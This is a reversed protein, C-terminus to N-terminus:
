PQLRIRSIRDSNFNVVYLTQDDALAIGSPGDFAEPPTATLRLLRRGSLDFVIVDNTVTSSAYLRKTKQDVILDPYQWISKQWEPVDWKNLFRGSTDFVQIRGNQADAVYVTEGFVAVATPELFEGVGSGRSGWQSSQGDARLKVIRSRGQDVVYVEDHLGLTAGRPGFFGPAPGNWEQEFTGDSRFKILRHKGADSVYLNGTSDVAVGNPELFEGSEGVLGLFEGNSSFKQVRGNGSDTVYFNGKQDIAIGRPREFQGFGHGHGGVFASVRFSYTTSNSASKLASVKYISLADYEKQNDEFVREFTREYVAENLRKIAGSQRVGNDIAVYAINNEKLLQILKTPDREEFMQRYATERPGVAYGASWAFLTNGLFIRRGSFLIPHSLLTQSLFLDSSQTNDLLWTTLRDNKYPVTLMTDNHIPFLDIVGGLTTLVVLVVSLAVGAIGIKAVRWLGFGAYMGAFSTWINLLKHNNFNDVSLQFLFVVALLSSFALFLRRHWDKLFVLAVAILVWKFGFSWGLYKLVQFITPHDLTYGWHLLAQGSPRTRLMLVQPLGLVLAVLILAGIYVRYPFLLFLCGLIVVSAVFAPSNWFPLLGILAGSFVSAYLFSRHIGVKRQVYHNDPSKDAIEELETSVLNSQEKHRSRYKDILFIIVVLLIGMGSILHRQYGLVSITLVGWNEGRWPYGSPLYDMRQTLTGLNETRLFPLYYLSSSLLFLVGALRGVVRSDFLLEACSMIIVLLACLSVISLVNVSWVPNLGLYSLNAAQFWFMFHYHIPEGPFFPHTTPFNQGLAFSQVLSLNAGFDSWGKFALLFKGNRFSLTAFMLWCAFLFFVGFFLSDWKTFSSLKVRSDRHPARWNLWYILAAALVFYLVNAWFLPRVTRAYMLAALYTFTSSIVLGVLFSTAFRHPWNVFRYFRRSIVDGLALMITLYLVAFM